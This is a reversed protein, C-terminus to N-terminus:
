SLKGRLLDQILEVPVVGRQGATLNGNDCGKHSGKPAAEHCPDGKHCMPRPTWVSDNHWIDTPKMWRSGYQCYTVTTRFPLEIRNQTFLHEGVDMFPMKRLSGRPNEIYFILGPNKDLFYKIIEQMKLVVADSVYAAVSRPSNRERHYSIGAISYTTCPPSSWIVDPIFKLKKPDLDLINITMDAGSKPSSDVTFTEWGMERATKSVIGTGSFLELLNL